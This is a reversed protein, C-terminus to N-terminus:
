IRTVNPDLGIFGGWREANGKNRCDELTGTCTTDSGTYGCEPGKFLTPTAYPCISSSYSRLPVRQTLPNPLGLTFVVWDEDSEAMLVEYDAELAPIPTSLFESNVKILKVEAGLGGQTENVINEIMRNADQSIRLTIQPVSGDSSLVQGGVDMNFAQYENDGYQVNETNRAFRKTTYNPVAIECLWLWTGGTNPKTLDQKMDAPLDKPM